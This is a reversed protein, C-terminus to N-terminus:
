VTQKCGSALIFVPELKKPKAAKIIAPNLNLLMM